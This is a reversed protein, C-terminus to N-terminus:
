KLVLKGTKSIIIESVPSRSHLIKKAKADDSICGTQLKCHYSTRIQGKIATQTNLSCSTWMLGGQMESWRQLVSQGTYFMWWILSTIWLSQLVFYPNWIFYHWSTFSSFIILFLFLFLCHVKFMRLDSIRKKCKICSARVLIEICSNWPLFRGQGRHMPYRFSVFEPVILFYKLSRYWESCMTVHIQQKQFIFQYTLIPKAVEQCHYQSTCLTIVWHTCPTLCFKQMPLNNFISLAGLCVM